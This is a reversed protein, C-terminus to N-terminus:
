ADGAGGNAYEVPRGLLSDRVYHIRDVVRPRSNSADSRTLRQFENSALWEMDAPVLTPNQALALAVGVSIAEFRIRPVSTNGANKRFSFPFNQAVFTLMNSFQASYAPAAFGDRNKEDLFDDLFEDVRKTFSQYRELYAFFRLVMEEYDRHKVRAESIPCLSNIQVSDQGPIQM